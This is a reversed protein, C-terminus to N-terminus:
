GEETHSLRTYYLQLGTGQYRGPDLLPPPAHQGAGPGGPEATPVPVPCDLGIPCVCGHLECRPFALFRECRFSLLLMAGVVRDAYSQVTQM